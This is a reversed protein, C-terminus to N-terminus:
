WTGDANVRAVFVDKSGGNSMLATPGFTSTGQFAGALVASGDGLTSISYGVDYETGGARAAWAFTGDAAVKAVYADPGGSSELTTAAFTASGFFFGTILASGDALAAIDYGQSDLAGGAKTTWMFTGDGKVKAVYIDTGGDSQLASAGFTATDSFYGTLLASGDALAAVHYGEDDKTGGAKTAWVFAGAGTLKAVFADNMGSSQLNSSGFTASGQLSGVMVLSGDPLVAVDYGEDNGTGGGRTAWAFTGDAKLKAVFADNLGASQLTTTGFTAAGQFLGTLVATGDPLAAVAFGQDVVTGGAKVAWAFTGSPNLKAVFADAEGSSDLTVGGFTAKGAFQGTIFASGDPQAAIAYAFDEGIGGAKVAWAFTGDPLVKAVFLDNGGTSQLMAGGFTAMSQFSGAVLASGDPLAAVALGKDDASGGAWTAAAGGGAGGNGASTSGGGSASSASSATGSGGVGAASNTNNASNTGSVSSGAGAGTGTAASPDM